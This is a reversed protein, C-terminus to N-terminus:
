KNGLLSGEKPKRDGSPANETRTERCLNLQGRHVNPSGQHSLRCFIQRCHLLGPNSVQNPFIGQFLFLCGVGTNKGLSNWPHLLRPVKGRSPTSLRETTDSEKPGWPSYGELNMQGHCEGPWFVPTPLRDRRWLIM